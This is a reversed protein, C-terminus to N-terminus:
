LSEQPYIQLCSQLTYTPGSLVNISFNNVTSSTLFLYWALNDPYFATQIAVNFNVFYCFDLMYLESKIAAYEFYRFYYENFWRTSYECCKM